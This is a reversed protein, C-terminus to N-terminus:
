CRFLCGFHDTEIMHQEFVTSKCERQEHIANCHNNTISVQRLLVSAAAEVGVEALSNGQVFALQKQKRRGM